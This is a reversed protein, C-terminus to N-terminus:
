KLVKKIGKHKLYLSVVSCSGTIVVLGRREDVSKKALEFAEEFDACARAKVRM